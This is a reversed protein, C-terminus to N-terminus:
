PLEKIFINRFYLTNGHNQLEIQGTEYIPKEKEWINELVTNDVVTKGNLKVTVREGIMTIHFSNWEGVPNDAHVLPFKPNKSNNWLSGSGKEAGHKFLEPFKTDWIQVQPSGRLYIGSDGGEKIKWDVLLEFNKYDKMTCLSKGKGDFVLIGDEVSWHKKMIDDAKEQEEALKEKSMKARTKPNGVLGKWGDINKGNFLPTFGEPPVNLNAKDDANVNSSVSVILILALLKVFCNKM